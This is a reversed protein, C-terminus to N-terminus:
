LFDVNNILKVLMTKETMKRIIDERIKFLQINNDRKTIDNMM